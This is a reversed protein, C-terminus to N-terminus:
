SPEKERFFSKLCKLNVVCVQLHDSAKFTAGPYLQTGRSFAGLITDYRPLGAQERTCQITEIVACDLRHLRGENEPMPINKLDYAAATVHYAKTLLEQDAKLTLNLCDGLDIVAGLVAPSKFKKRDKAWQWARESDLWFYIGWGLWEGEGESPRLLIEGAIVSEVISKETGHYGKLAVPGEENSVKRGSVGGLPRVVRFKKGPRKASRRVSCPNKGKSQVPAYHQKEEGKTCALIKTQSENPYILDSSTM